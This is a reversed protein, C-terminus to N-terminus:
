RMLDAPKLRFYNSDLVEKMLIFQRQNESYLQCHKGLDKMIFAFRKNTNQM